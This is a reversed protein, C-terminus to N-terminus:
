HCFVVVTIKSEGGQDCITQRPPLPVSLFKEMVAGDPMICQNILPHPLGVPHREGM